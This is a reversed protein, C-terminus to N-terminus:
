GYTLTHVKTGHDFSSSQHFGCQIPSRACSACPEASENRGSQQEGRHRRAQSLIRGRPGTLGSRLLRRWRACLLTLLRRM